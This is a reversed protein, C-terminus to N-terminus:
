ELWNEPNKPFKVEYTRPNKFNLNDKRMWPNLIKLVKYNIGQSKAFSPLNEIPTQFSKVETSYPQYLDSEDLIFGYKERNSTIQKVALIRYVYRGTETNLLLDYYSEVGQSSLQKNVGGMGMNYSAAVLSWSGYKAYATNLYQCAAKTSKEVNYREDVLSNVELGYEKGTEKMFQWFGAAGAPSVANTLGSEILALYKFDEPINNEKLIPEIVPFWRNARKMMLFSNSHWYTNVLLERDLKERVDMLQLPVNEGAFTMAEPSYPPAVSYLDRAEETKTIQEIVPHSSLESEDKQTFGYITLGLIVFIGMGIILNNRSM